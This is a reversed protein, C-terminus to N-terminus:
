KTSDRILQLAIKELNQELKLDESILKLRHTINPYFEIRHDHQYLLIILAVLARASVEQDEEGAFDILRHVKEEDWYRM